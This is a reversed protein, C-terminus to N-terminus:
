SEPPKPAEPAASSTEPAAPETIIARAREASEMALKSLEASKRKLEATRLGLEKSLEAVKAIAEDRAQKQKKEAEAIVGRLQKTLSEGHKKLVDVQQAVKARAKKAEEALRKQLKHQSAEKELKDRLGLITDRLQELQRLHPSPKKAAPKKAAPKKSAM